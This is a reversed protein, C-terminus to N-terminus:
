PLALKMVKLSASYAPQTPSRFAAKPDGKKHAATDGERASPEGGAGSGCNM